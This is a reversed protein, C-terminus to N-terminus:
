DVHHQPNSGPSQTGQSHVRSVLNDRVHYVIHKKKKKKFSHTKIYPSAPVSLSFLYRLTSLLECALLREYEGGGERKQKNKLCPREIIYSQINQFKSHLDHQSQRGLAPILPMAEV